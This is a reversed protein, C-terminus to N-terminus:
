FNFISFQFHLCSLYNEIKLEGSEIKLQRDTKQVARFFNRKTRNGIYIRNPKLYAGLFVFGKAYHQFYIKKPHLTLGCKDSLYHRIKEKAELLFPKDPHMLVFDDVYRGDYQVGLEQKVFCDFDHLYVNSFLQSTLNGIPLGCDPAAFFLSKDRPLGDWM